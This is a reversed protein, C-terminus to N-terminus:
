RLLMHYDDYEPPLKASKKLIIRLAEVLKEEQPPRDDKIAALKEMIQQYKEKKVRQRLRKVDEVGKDTEATMDLSASMGQADVGREDACM